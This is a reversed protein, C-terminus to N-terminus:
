GGADGGRRAGSEGCARCLDAAAAEAGGRPRCDCQRQRGTVKVEVVTHKGSDSRVDVTASAAPGCMRAVELRVKEKIALDRLAPKFIKGVATVPLADIVLISQAPAGATRPCEKQM